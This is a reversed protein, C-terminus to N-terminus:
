IFEEVIKKEDWKTFAFPLVDLFHVSQVGEIEMEEFLFVM